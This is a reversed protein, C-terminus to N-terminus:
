HLTKAAPGGAADVQFMFEASSRWVESGIVSIIYLKSSLSPFCM